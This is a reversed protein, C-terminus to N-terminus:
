LFSEPKDSKPILAIFTANLAWNVNGKLMSEEVVELLEPGVLYFFDLFIEVTWGDLRLSKSVVFGKLTVLVETL